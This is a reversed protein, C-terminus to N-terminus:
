VQLHFCTHVWPVRRSRLSTMMVDSVQCSTVHNFTSDLDIGCRSGRPRGKGSTVRTVAGGSTVRAVPGSKHDKRFVIVDADPYTRTVPAPRPSQTRTHLSVGFTGLRVRCTLIWPPGQVKCEEVCSIQATTFGFSFLTINTELHGDCLDLTDLHETHSKSDTAVNNATSQEHHRREECVCLAHARVLASAATGVRACGVVAGVWGLGVVHNM